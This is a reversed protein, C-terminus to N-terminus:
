PAFKYIKFVFDNGAAGYKNVRTRKLGKETEPQNEREPYQFGPTIHITNIIIM